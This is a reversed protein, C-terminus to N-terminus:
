IAFQAGFVAAAARKQPQVVGCLEFLFFAGDAGQQAFVAGHVGDPPHIDGVVVAVLDNGGKGRCRAPLEGGADIRGAGVFHQGHLAAQQFVFHQVLHQQSDPRRGIAAAVLGVVLVAAGAQETVTQETPGNGGPLHHHYQDRSLGNQGTGLVEDTIEQFFGFRAADRHGGHHLIVVGALGANHQALGFFHQVALAENQVSEAALGIGQAGAAEVLDVRHLRRHEVSQGHIGGAQGSFLGHQVGVAANAGDAERGGALGLLHYADLEVPVGHPVGNAVGFM